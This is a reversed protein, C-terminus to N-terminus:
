QQSRRLFVYPREPSFGYAVIEHSQPTELPFRDSSWSNTGFAARGSTRFIKRVAMAAQPAPRRSSTDAPPTPRGGHLILFIAKGLILTTSSAFRRAILRTSALSGQSTPTLGARSTTRPSAGFMIRCAAGGVVHSSIHSRRRPPIIPAASK